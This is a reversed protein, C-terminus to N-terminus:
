VFRIQVTEESEGHKNYTYADNSIDSAINEIADDNLSSADHQLNNLTKSEAKASPEDRITERDKRVKAYLFDLNNGNELRSTDDLQNEECNSLHRNQTTGIAQTEHNLTNSSSYLGQLSLGDRLPNFSDQISDMINQLSRSRRNPNPYPPRYHRRSSIEHTNPVPLPRNHIRSIGQSIEGNTLTHLNVVLETLVQSDIKDSSNKRWQRVLLLGIVVLLVAVGVLGMSLFADKGDHLTIPDSILTINTEQNTVHCAYHGAMKSEFIINLKQSEITVRGKWKFSCNPYCNAFCDIAFIDHEKLYFHREGRSLSVNDPGYLVQITYPDSYKSCGDHECTVCSLNRASENFCVQCTVNNFNYNMGLGSITYTNLNYVATSEIDNIRWRYLYDEYEDSANCTMLLPLGFIAKESKMIKPKGIVDLKISTNSSQEKSVAKKWLTYNGSQGATVNVINLVVILGDDSSNVNCLM